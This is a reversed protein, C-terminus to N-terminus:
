IEMVTFLFSFCAVVGPPAVPSSALDWARMFERWFHPSSHMAEPYWINGSTSNFHWRNIFRSGISTTMRSFMVMAHHFNSSRGYGRGDASALLIATLVRVTSRLIALSCFSFNSTLRGESSARPLVTRLYSREPRTVSSLFYACALKASRPTGTESSNGCSSHALLPWQWIRSACWCYKSVKFSLPRTENLFNWWMLAFFSLIRRSALFGAWNFFCTVVRVGRWVTNTLTSERFRVSIETLSIKMSSTSSNLSTSSKFADFSPTSLSDNAAVSACPECEKPLKVPRGRQSGAVSEAVPSGRDLEDTNKMWEM